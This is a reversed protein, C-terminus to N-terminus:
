ANDRIKMLLKGLNNEGTGNCVGWFRDGWTNNEAIEGTVAKLKQMLEPHQAFKANLINEMIGLNVDHWDPRAKVNKSLRKAEFGDLNVFEDIRSPDKMAQYASESCKFTYDKNNIKLTVSAPYMNSLFYYEGRFAAASKAPQYTTNKYQTYYSSYDAKVGVVNCGVGQLLGAIISRHCLTEDVCYCVLCINRGAKDLKYLKNLEARAEASHMENLFQPLYVTRFTEANWNNNNKLDMYKSFLDWSPSLAPVQIINPNPRQMKRVIAWVEDYGAYNVDRINKIAIM